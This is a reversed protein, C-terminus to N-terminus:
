LLSNIISIIKQQGTTKNLIIKDNKINTKFKNLNSIFYNLKKQNLNNCSVGFKNKNIIYANLHQEYPEVPIAYVPIRLYMAESLLSHGATSIIGNCISLIDYFKSSGHKYIKINKYKQKSLTTYLDSKVFVHFIIKPNDKLIKILEKPTTIFDRASSIYVLISRNTNNNVRNINIIQKKITPAVTTYENHQSQNTVNFFSCVIRKEAKPFFMRLRAIEDQYSFGNLNTPFNSCLFKSQQDITILKVNHAYAFQASTPEYDSIVLDPKGFHKKAKKIATCNIKVFNKENIKSNATKTWDIGNTSGFYFQQAVEVLKVNQNDKFYTKYFKLASDHTFIVIQNNRSLTEIIPLQRMAHGNGFGSVGYLIKKNKM